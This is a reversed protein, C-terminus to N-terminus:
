GDSAAVGLAASLRPMRAGMGGEVFRKSAQRARESRRPELASFISAEQIAIVSNPAQNGDLNTASALSLASDGDAGAGAADKNHTLGVRLATALRPLLTANEGDVFRTTARRARTSERPQSPTLTTPNAPFPQKAM